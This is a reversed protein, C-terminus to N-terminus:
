DLVLKVGDSAVDRVLRPAKRLRLRREDCSRGTRLDFRYGHWPCELAGSSDPDELLPGLAHPCRTDHVRLEGDLLVVRWRAGGLEVCLPVRRSLEPFSGLELVRAESEGGSSALHRAREGMMEEDQDWLRGYLELYMAGLSERGEEPISALWFEVRIETESEGTPLLSTWIESTTIDDQLTRSVYRNAEIETLLAVTFPTEPFATSVATAKWGWPGSDLLDISAFDQRHLWPLHEWDFVNEWVRELSAHITRRLTGVRDLGPSVPFVDLSM